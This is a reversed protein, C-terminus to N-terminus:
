PAEAGEIEGRPNPWVFVLREGRALKQWKAFADDLHEAAPTPRGSQWAALHQGALSESGDLDARHEVIVARGPKTRRRGTSKFTAGKELCGWFGYPLRIAAEVVFQAVDHPLGKGAAMTSGPVRTRKGRVAEWACLRRGNKDIKSFAVRV